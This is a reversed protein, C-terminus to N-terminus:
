LFHNKNRSDAAERKKIVLNKPREERKPKISSNDEKIMLYGLNLNRASVLDQFKYITHIFLYNRIQAHM